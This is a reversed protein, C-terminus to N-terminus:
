ALSGHLTSKNVNFFESHHLDQLARQREASHTHIGYLKGGGHLLAPIAPVQHCVACVCSQYSLMMLSAPYINRYIRSNLSEVEVTMNIVEFYVFLFFGRINM